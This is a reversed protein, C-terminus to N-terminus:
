TYSFNHLVIGDLDFPADASERALVMDNIAPKAKMRGNRPESRSARIDDPMLGPVLSVSRPLPITLKVRKYVDFATSNSVQHLSQSRTTTAHVQLFQVLCDIFDPAGFDNIIAAVSVNPYSPKKPVRRQISFRDLSREILTDTDDDTENTDPYENDSDLRDDSANRDSPSSGANKVHEVHSLWTQFCRFEHLADRRRLWMTMQPIYDKKNSARYAYKALDIHLREPGETSFDPACGLLRISEAYHAPSHMKPFNFHTRIGLEKFVDKTSHFDQLANEMRALSEETHSHFHVYYIFDLLARTCRVVGADVAGAIVGLFVKEM